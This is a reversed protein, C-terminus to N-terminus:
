PSNHFSHSVKLWRLPHSISFILLKEPPIHHLFITLAFEELFSQRRLFFPTVGENRQSLAVSPFNTVQILHPPAPYTLGVQVTSAFLVLRETQLFQCCVLVIRIGFRKGAVPHERGSTSANLITLMQDVNM